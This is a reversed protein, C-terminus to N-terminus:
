KMVRLIHGLSSTFFQLIAMREMIKYNTLQYFDGQGAGFWLCVETKICEKCHAYFSHLLIATYSQM